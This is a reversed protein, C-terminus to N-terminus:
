DLRKAASSGFRARAVALFPWLPGCRRLASGFGAAERERIEEFTLKDAAYTAFIRRV